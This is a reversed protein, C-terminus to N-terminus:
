VAEFLELENGELDKLWAFRGYDYDESRDVAVGLQQLHELLKQLDKEPM